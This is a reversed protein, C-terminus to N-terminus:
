EIVEHKTSNIFEAEAVARHDMWVIVNRHKQKGERDVPLPDYGEGLVVRENRM